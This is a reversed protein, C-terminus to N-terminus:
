FKIILHNLYRNYYIGKYQYKEHKTMTVEYNLHFGFNHDRIKEDNYSFIGSSENFIRPVTFKINDGLENGFFKLQKRFEDSHVAKYILFIMSPYDVDALETKKLIDMYIKKINDSTKCHYMHRHVGRKTKSLIIEPVTIKIDTLFYTAFADTIEAHMRQKEIIKQERVQMAQYRQQSFETQESATNGM